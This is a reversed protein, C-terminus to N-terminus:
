GRARARARRARLKRKLRRRMRIGVRVRQPLVLREMRLLQQWFVLVVEPERRLLRRIPFVMKPHAKQMKLFRRKAGYSNRLIIAAGAVTFPVGLPGPLPAIALGVVVLLAGFGIGAWRAIRGLLERAAEDSARPVRMYPM